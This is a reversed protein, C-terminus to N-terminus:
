AVMTPTDAYALCQGCISSPQCGRSDSQCGPKLNPLPRRSWNAPGPSWKMGTGGGEGTGHRQEVRGHTAPCRQVEGPTMWGSLKRRKHTMHGRRPVGCPACGGAGVLAPSAGCARAGERGRGTGSNWGGVGRPQRQPRCRLPPRPLPLSPPATGRFVAGGGGAEGTPGPPARLLPPDPFPAGRKVPRRPARSGQRNVVMSQHLAVHLKSPPARHPPPHPRTGNRRCAVLGKVEDLDYQLSM